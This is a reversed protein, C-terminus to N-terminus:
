RCVYHSMGVRFRRGLGLGLELGFRHQLCYVQNACIEVFKAHVICIPQGKLVGTFEHLM